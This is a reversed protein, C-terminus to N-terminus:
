ILSLDKSLYPMINILLWCEMNKVLDKCEGWEVVVLLLVAVRLGSSLEKTLM